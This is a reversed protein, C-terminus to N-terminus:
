LIYFMLPFETAPEVLVIHLNKWLKNCNFGQLNLHFSAGHRVTHLTPWSPDAAWLITKNSCTAGGRKDSELIVQNMATSATKM